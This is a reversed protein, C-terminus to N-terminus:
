CFLSCFSSHPFLVISRVSNMLKHLQSLSNNVREQFMEIGIGKGESFHLAHLLFMGSGSGWDAISTIGKIIAGHNECTVLCDHVSLTTGAGDLGADGLVGQEGGREKYNPKLIEEVDKCCSNEKIRDIWLKGGFPNSSKTMSAVAAEGGASSSSSSSKSVDNGGTEGDGDNMTVDVNDATSASASDTGSSTTVLAHQCSHAVASAPSSSSSSENASIKEGNEGDGDNMTVDMSGDISASASGSGDTPLVHADKSSHTEMTGDGLKWYRGNPSTEDGFSPESGEANTGEVGEISMKRVDLGGEM